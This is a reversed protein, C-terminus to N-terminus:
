SRGVREPFQERGCFEHPRQNRQDKQHMSARYSRQHGLLFLCPITRVRNSLLNLFRVERARIKRALEVASNLLIEDKVPPVVKKEIFLNIVTFIKPIVFYWISTIVAVIGHFFTYYFGRPGEAM